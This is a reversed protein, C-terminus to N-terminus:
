QVSYSNDVRNAGAIWRKGNTTAEWFLVAGTNPGPYEELSFELTAVNKLVTKRDRTISSDEWAIRHVLTDQLTRYRIYTRGCSEIGAIPALLAKIKKRTVIADQLSAGRNITTGFGRHVNSYAYYVLSGLVSAVAIAIILEVLTIGRRNM